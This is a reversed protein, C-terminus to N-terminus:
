DKHHRATKEDMLRRLTGAPSPPSRDLGHESAYARLAANVSDSTPFMAWVDPALLVLYPNRVGRRFDTRPIESTDPDGVAGNRTAGVKVEAKKKM